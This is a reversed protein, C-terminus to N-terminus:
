KIILLLKYNIACGIEVIIFRQIRTATDLTTAAFSIILVAMLTKSINGPLGIQELLAGGGLVFATAKNTSAHSWSQYYTAWNLDQIHGLAPLHCSEVLAIGAVAAILSATALTAEGLMSGYGIARADKLNNFTKCIKVGNLRVQAQYKDKRKRISAM